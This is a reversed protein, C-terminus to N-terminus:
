CFNNHWCQLEIEREAWSSGRRGEVPTAKLSYKCMLSCDRFTNGSFGFMLVLSSYAYLLFIYM